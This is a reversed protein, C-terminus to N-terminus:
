WDDNIQLKMYGCVRMEASVPYKSRGHGGMGTSRSWHIQRITVVQKSRDHGSQPLPHIYQILMFHLCDFYYTIEIAGLKM